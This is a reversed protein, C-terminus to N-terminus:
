PRGPQEHAAPVRGGPSAAATAQTASAQTASAQTTSAQTATAQTAGAEALFAGAEALFAIVNARLGTLRMPPLARLLQHRYPATALRPDLVAVVGRDVSSRILRGVGQALLTAARPLDITNFADPGARRRRAQFLPEDPRPFPLRDIAVLSLSRGPVDVGQWFGMTAFLCSTEDDTFASLLAPKPLDEQTLLRWPLRERLTTAAARMARWSTFLALTRGGAARVLAELEEHMAREHEPQRPDPLRTPCYLVAHTAYDFPSGVDLEDCRDAPLGLRARTGQPVTASTLVGRVGTAWLRSALLGAVDVPAVRLAPNHASGEVWAVHGPALPATGALDEALSAAAKLARLKTGAPDAGGGPGALSPTATATSATATTATARLATMARNVRQSASIVAGALTVDDAPGNELLRGRLPELAAALRAGADELSAADNSDAGTVTRVVRSLSVFRGATLEIGLAEAVIDEVQHVEDFIVVDHEPLLHGDSALHSAYLHTNVVVIDAGAARDRAAEAFCENGMACRARGPCERSTVSLQAWARSRPEFDLDARDGTTSTRAWELVRMLERGLRGLEDAGVGDLDLESQRGDGGAGISRAKDLCVYNARGKVVAWTFPRTLQSALFPLDKHALQDQLARTATAVVCRVGLVVAPVLYALSKGTGTGAQVVVHRRETIARTVARAMEIQGPRTESGPLAATVRALAAEVEAEGM